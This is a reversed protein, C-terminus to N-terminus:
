QRKQKEVTYKRDLEKIKNDYIVCYATILYFEQKREELVIVYNEKRCWIIFRNRGKKPTDKFIALNECGDCLDGLIENIWAIRAIRSENYLREHVGKTTLHEYSQHQLKCNLETFVKIPKGKFKHSMGAIFKMYVNEYIRQLYEDFSENLSKEAPASLKVCLDAM